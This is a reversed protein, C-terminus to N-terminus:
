RPRMRYVTGGDMGNSSGSIQPDEDEKQVAGGMGVDLLGGPGWLRGVVARLLTAQTDCGRSCNSAGRSQGWDGPLGNVSEDARGSEHFSFRNM